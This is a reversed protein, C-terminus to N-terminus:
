GYKRAELVETAVRIFANLRSATLIDASSHFDKNDITVKDRKALGILENLLDRPLHQLLARREDQPLWCYAQLLWATRRDLEQQVQHHQDKEM